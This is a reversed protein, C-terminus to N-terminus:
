DCPVKMRTARRLYEVMRDFKKLPETADAAPLRPPDTLLEKKIDGPL